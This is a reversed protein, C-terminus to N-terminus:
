IKLTLVPLESHNVVDEGVSGNFFHSIGKRGHTPIIILDAKLSLAGNLIGEGLSYDNYIEINDRSLPAEMKNLFNKIHDRIETTSYFQNGPLNIYLLQMKAKFSDVFGKATQYAEMTELEFNSAFVANKFDVDKLENKIVMVPVESFRVVKETNSGVVIEELGSAGSSGMVVMDIDNKEVVDRIIRSASGPEVHEIISIDKLYDKDLFEVFKKSAMKMFFLIQENDVNFQETGFLSEALEIVHLIHLEAKNKIALKAAVKLANESPISFDIPVLIKKM